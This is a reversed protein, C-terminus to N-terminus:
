FAISHEHIPLSLMTLVGMNGLTVCLNLAIGGLIRIVNKQERDRHIKRYISDYVIVKRTQSGARLKM